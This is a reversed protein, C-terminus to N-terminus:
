LRLQGFRGGVIQLIGILLIIVLVGIVILRAPEPLPVQKLFWWAAYLVIVVVILTVLATIIFTM